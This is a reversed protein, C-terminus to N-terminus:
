WPGVVDLGFGSVYANSNTNQVHGRVMVYKASGPLLEARAYSTMDHYPTAIGRMRGVCRPTPASLLPNPCLEIGGTAAISPSPWDSGGMGPGAGVYPCVIRGGSQVSLGDLSPFCIGSFVVTPPVVIMWRGSYGNATNQVDRAAIFFRYTSDAVFCNYDGFGSFCSDKDFSTAYGNLYLYVWATLGDAAILWPRATSNATDSKRMYRPGLEHFGTNIDTMLSYATLIAERAGGTGAANDNVKVYCGSGGESTNNRFVAINSAAGIFEESWGASAKAGYAVGAVGVLCKRLLNTLSGVEGTLTPAGADDHRFYRVTSM